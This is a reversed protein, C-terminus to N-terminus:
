SEVLGDGALISEQLADGGADLVSEVHEGRINVVQFVDEGGFSGLRQAAESGDSAQEWGHPVPVHEPLHRCEEADDEGEHVDQGDGSQVTTM